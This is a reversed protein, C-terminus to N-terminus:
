GKCFDHLLELLIPRCLEFGGGNPRETATDAVRPALAAEIGNDSDVEKEDLNKVTVRGTRM